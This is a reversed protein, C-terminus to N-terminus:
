GGGRGSAAASRGGPSGGPTAIETPDVRMPERRTPTRPFGLMLSGPFPWPQSGVYGVRSSGSASRRACRARVAAEASEGPEVFGALCSYRRVGGPAHWAANNGLLCRGDPGAVGDHVLVIMAPDTRPWIQRATATWGPVLRAEAVATPQAPSRPSYRTGPTGTRWRSRRHHVHRRGPRSLLHGVDRLDVARTGPVAPLPADVAFVPVGDPEVGLFYGGDVRGPAPAPLRAGAVADSGGTPRRRRCGPWRGAATRGLRGGAGPGRGRRPWGAPDTRATRGGPGAHVAGAAAGGGGSM